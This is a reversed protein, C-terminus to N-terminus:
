SLLARAQRLDKNFEASFARDIDGPTLGIDALERDTMGRLQVADARQRQWDAFAAVRAAIWGFLGTAPKGAGAGYLNPEELRANIYTQRPLEYTLDLKAIPATM